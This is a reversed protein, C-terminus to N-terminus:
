RKLKIKLYGNIFQYTNRTSNIGHFILDTKIETINMRFENALGKTQSIMGQSGDTLSWIKPNNINLHIKSFYNHLKKIGKPSNIEVNDDKEKVM